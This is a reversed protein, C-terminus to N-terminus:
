GPAGGSASANVAQGRLTITTGAFSPELWDTAVFVGADRLAQTYAFFAAQVQQMAETPM